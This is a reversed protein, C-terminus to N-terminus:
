IGSIIKENMKMRKIGWNFDKLQFFVLNNVNSLAMMMQSKMPTM